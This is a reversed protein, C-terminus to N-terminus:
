RPRGHRIFAGTDLDFIGITIVIGPRYVDYVSVDVYHPEYTPRHILWAGAPVHYRVRSCIGPPPQHGPPRDPYWARPHWSWRHWWV